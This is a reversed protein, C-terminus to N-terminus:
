PVSNLSMICQSGLISVVGVSDCNDLKEVKKVEVVVASYNSNQVELKM